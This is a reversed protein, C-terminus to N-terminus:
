GGTRKLLTGPSPPLHSENREAKIILGEKIHVVITCHAGDDQAKRIKSAAWALLQADENARNM